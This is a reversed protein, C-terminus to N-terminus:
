LLNIKKKLNLYKNIIIEIENINVNITNNNLETTEVSKLFISTNLSQNINKKNKLNNKM